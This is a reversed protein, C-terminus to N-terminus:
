LNKKTLFLLLKGRKTIVKQWSSTKFSIGVVASTPLSERFETCLNWGLANFTPNHGFLMLTNVGNNVHSITNLVQDIGGFHYLPDQQLIDTSPYNLKEAFIKATELARCAPSSLMLDVQNLIQALHQSIVTAREVGYDTLCRNFDSFDPAVEVAKSPRVIYLKKMTGFGLMTPHFM